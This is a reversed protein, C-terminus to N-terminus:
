RDSYRALFFFNSRMRSRANFTKLFALHSLHLCVQLCVQCTLCRPLHVDATPMRVCLGPDQVCAMVQLYASRTIHPELMRECTPHLVLSFEAWAVGNCEEVEFLQRGKMMESRMDNKDSHGPAGVHLLPFLLCAFHRAHTDASAALVDYFAYSICFCPM